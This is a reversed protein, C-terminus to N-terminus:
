VHRELCLEQEFQVGFDTDGSTAEVVSAGDDFIRLAQIAAFRVRGLPDRRMATTLVSKVINSRDVALARGFAAAAEARLMGSDSTVLTDYVWSHEIPGPLAGIETLRGWCWVAARQLVPSANMVRHTIEQAISEGWAAAPVEGLFYLADRAVEEDADIICDRLIRRAMEVAETNNTRALPFALYPRSGRPLEWEAGAAISTWTPRYETLSWACQDRVFFDRDGIGNILGAAAVDGKFRKLTDAMRWRIDPDQHSTLHQVLLEIAPQAMPLDAFTKLALAATMLSIWSPNDERLVQVASAAIQDRSETGTMSASPYEREHRHLHEYHYVIADPEYKVIQGTRPLLEKAWLRDELELTHENFSHQEWSLRRFCSNANWLLAREHESRPESDSFMHLDRRDGFECKENFVQSGYTALVTENLSWKTLAALWQRSSPLAHASLLVIIDGTSTAIGQNIAKGPRYDEIDVLTDVYRSAIARSEDGSEHDVGIIEVPISIQQARVASLVQGIYRQENRFRVVVSIKHV